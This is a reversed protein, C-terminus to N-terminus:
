HLILRTITNDFNLKREAEPPSRGRVGQGPARGTSGAPPDAGLGANYARAGRARWTTGGSNLLFRRWQQWEGIWFYFVGNRPPPITHLRHSITTVVDELTQKEVRSNIFESDDSAESYMILQLSCCIIVNLACPVLVNANKKTKLVLWRKGVGVQFTKNWTREVVQEIQHM